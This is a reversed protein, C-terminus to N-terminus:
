VGSEERGTRRHRLLGSLRDDTLVRDLMLYGNDFYFARRAPSLVKPPRALVEEPRM